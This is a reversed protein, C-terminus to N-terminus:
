RNVVVQAAQVVRDHLLYGQRVVEVICGSAAGDVQALGVAEHREPNFTEGLAPIRTVGEAELFSALKRQILRVGEVWSASAPASAPDGGPGPVAGPGNGGTELHTVALDLEDVIPLLRVLLGSNARQRIGIREEDHRRRANALDARGRQVADQQRAIEANADALAARLSATEQEPTLADALPPEKLLPEKPDSESLADAGAADANAGANAGTDLVSPAAGPEPPNVPSETTTM